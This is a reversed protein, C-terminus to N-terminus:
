YYPTSFYRSQIGILRAVCNYPVINIGITIFVDIVFSGNAIISHILFRKLKSPPIFFVVTAQHAACQSPHDHRPVPQGRTRSASGFRQM